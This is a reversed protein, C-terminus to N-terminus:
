LLLKKRYDVPSLHELKKFVRSFYKEDEFGVAFAVEKITIPSNGLLIKAKEIRQLQLYRTLTMGMEKSFLHSLYVKNYGFYNAVEQVTIAQASNQELWDAVFAILQNEPTTKQQQYKKKTNASLSLLFTKTFSNLLDNQRQNNKMTTILQQFLIIENSTIFNEAYLPWIVSEDELTDITTLFLETEPLLFHLWYFSLNAASQQGGTFYVNPPILLIDGPRVKINKEEVILHLTENIGIFLEYNHNIRPLHQWPIDSYFKGALEFLTLNLSNTTFFHNDDFM